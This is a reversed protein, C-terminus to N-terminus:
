YNIVVRVAIYYISAPSPKDTRIKNCLHFLIDYQFM